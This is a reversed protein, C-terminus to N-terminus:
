YYTKILNFNKQISQLYFLGSILKHYDHREDYLEYSKNITDDMEDQCEQLEIEMKAHLEEFLEHEVRLSHMEDQMLKNHWQIMTLDQM